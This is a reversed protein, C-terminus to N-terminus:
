ALIEVIRVCARSVGGVVAEGGGSIITSRSAAHDISVFIIRGPLETFFQTESRLTAALKVPNTTNKIAIVGGGPIEVPGSVVRGGVHVEACERWRRRGM